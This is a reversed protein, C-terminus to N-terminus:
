THGNKPSIANLPFIGAEFDSFAATKGMSMSSINHRCGVFFLVDCFARTYFIKVDFNSQSLTNSTVM